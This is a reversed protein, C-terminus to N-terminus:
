PQALQGPTTAPSASGPQESAMSYQCGCRYEQASTTGDTWTTCSDSDPMASTVLLLWRTDWANLYM